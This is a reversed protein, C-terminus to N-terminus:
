KFVAIKNLGQDSIFVQGSDSVAMGSPSDLVKAANAPFAMVPRLDRDLVLVSRSGRNAVYVTGVQDVAISSPEDLRFGEQQNDGYLAVLKGTEDYKYVRDASDDTVLLCGEPDLAVSSPSKLMSGSTYGSNGIARIFRGASDFVEVRRNGRDAV